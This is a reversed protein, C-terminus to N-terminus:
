AMRELKQLTQRLRWLEDEGLLARVDRQAEDWLPQGVQLAGRGAATLHLQRQRGRGDADDALLGREILPKISRAVTSYDLGLAEALACVGCQELSDVARLISFQMVAVGSPELKRAYHDIVSQSAQSLSRVFDHHLQIESM